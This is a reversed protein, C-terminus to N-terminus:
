LAKPAGGGEQNLIADRRRALEDRVDKSFALAWLCYGSIVAFIGVFATVQWSKTGAMLVLYGYFVLGLCSFIILLTRAINSGRSLWLAVAISSIGGVWGFPYPEVDESFLSLAYPMLASVGGVLFLAIVIRLHVIGAM